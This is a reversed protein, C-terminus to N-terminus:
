HCDGTGCIEPKRVEIQYLNDRGLYLLPRKMWIWVKITTFYTDNLDADGIYIELEYLNDKNADVPNEYDLTGDGFVKIVGDVVVFHSADTGSLLITLQDAQGPHVADPDSAELNVIVNEGEVREIM